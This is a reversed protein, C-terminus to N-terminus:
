ISYFPLDTNWKGVNPLTLGAAAGEDSAKKLFSETDLESLGARSLYSRWYPISKLTRKTIYESEKSALPGALTPQRVSLDSPCDVWVQFALFLV